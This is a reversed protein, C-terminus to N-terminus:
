PRKRPRLPGRPETGRPTEPAITREEAPMSSNFVYLYSVTATNGKGPRPFQFDQVAQSVCYALPEDNSGTVKCDTVRGLPDISLELAMRLSHSAVLQDREMALQFCYQLTGKRREMVRRLEAAELGAECPETCAPNRDLEGPREEFEVLRKRDACSAEVGMVCARAHLGAARGLDRKTGRGAERMLAEAACGAGVHIACADSFAALARADDHPVNRWRSLLLGLEFCSWASGDTCREDLHSLAAQPDDRLLPWEAERCANTLLSASCEGEGPLGSPAPAPRSFCGAALFAWVALRRM